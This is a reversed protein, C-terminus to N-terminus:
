ELHHGVAGMRRLTCHDKRVRRARYATAPRTTPTQRTPEGPLIRPPDPDLRGTARSSAPAGHPVSEPSSPANHDAFGSVTVTPHFRDASLWLRSFSLFPIAVYAGSNSTAAGREGGTHIHAPHFSPARGYARNVTTRRGRVPVLSIRTWWTHLRALRSKASTTMRRVDRRM